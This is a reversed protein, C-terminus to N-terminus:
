INEKSQREALIRLNVPDILVEKQSSAFTELWPIYDNNINVPGRGRELVLQSGSRGLVRFNPTQTMTDSSLLELYASLVRTNNLPWPLSTLEAGVEQQTLHHRVHEGFQRGKQNNTILAVFGPFRKKENM